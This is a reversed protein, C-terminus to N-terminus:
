INDYDEEVPYRRKLTQVFSMVQEVSSLCYVRGGAKRITKAVAKQLARPKEGTAKLEVFVVRGRLVVIRDPVGARSPSTFKYCCGGAKEVMRKLAQEVTRETEM